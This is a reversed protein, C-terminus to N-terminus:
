PESNSFFPMWEEHIRRMKTSKIKWRSNEKIYEDEYFGWGHMKRGSKMVLYDNFAWNAKAMTESIISIEPSYGGHASIKIEKEFSDKFMQVIQKRGQFQINPVSDLIADESFCNGIEEWLKTDVCRWYKAKLKKIEEINELINIRAELNEKDSM